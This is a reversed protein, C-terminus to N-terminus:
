LGGHHVVRDDTLAKMFAVLDDIEQETLDLETIDADLNSPNGDFGTTDGNGSTSRRDGGRDYFEVVQRLTAQGGNHFFPGTLEVNRLGPTKFAGDVALPDNGFAQRLENRSEPEENGPATEEFDEPELPQGQEAFARQWRVGETPDEFIGRM